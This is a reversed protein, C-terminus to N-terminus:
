PRIQWEPSAKREELWADFAAIEEPTLEGTQAMADKIQQILAIVLQLMPGFVAAWPGAALPALAMLLSMWM